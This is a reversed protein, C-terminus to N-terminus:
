RSKLYQIKYHAKGKDDIEMMIFSPQRGEQRPYALSGPNLITVDEEISVLPRHTHGYMVIDAGRAIAEKRLTEVGMSVYYYHGHTLLVKYDELKIEAEKRCDTFFDNNGAVLEYRCDLLSAIYAEEGEIDGLHIFFDIEGLQNLVKELIRGKKHTDSVILIRM